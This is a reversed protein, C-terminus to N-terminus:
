HRARSIQNESFTYRTTRLRGNIFTYVIGDKLNRFIVADRSSDRVFGKQKSLGMSEPTDSSSEHQLIVQLVTGAIEPRLKKTRVFNEDVFSISATGGAVKFTMLGNRGETVPPGLIKLVDERRSKFPEIGQWSGARAIESYGFLMIAIVIAIHWRWHVMVTKM